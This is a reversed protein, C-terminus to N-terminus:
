HSARQSRPVTIRLLFLFVWCCFHFLFGQRVVNISTSLSFFLSIFVFFVFLFNAQFYNSFRSLSNYNVYYYVGAVILLFAQYSGLLNKVLSMMYYFLFDSGGSSLNSGYLWAAYYNGTDTGVNFERFGVVIVLSLSFCAVAFATLKKEAASEISIRPLAQYILFFFSCYALGIYILNYVFYFATKDIM